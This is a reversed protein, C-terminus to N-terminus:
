RTKIRIVTLSMAPAAYDFTKGVIISTTVPFVKQATGLTNEAQEDGSLITQTANAMTNKFGSLKVKMPKSTKSFNVMKIIIDGTKSDQVCSASITSDNEDKVIVKDFYIDGRNTSFMKQVYYNPTPSINVNDFFILDTTWQTFGKKAVLPAYSALKVIDGNRELSIMYIAEAIANRMKNGWSAYEGLYVQSSKRNYKDYRKQNSILWNPDTYYHEDVIPVKLENALKWGKEFDPGSHFPGSTGIVTIEPHKEKIAQYIMTFREEFEPTIKDENGIGIYELNFPDPHGAAARKAGWTSTMPGNAWEVLDLVEQIYDQM